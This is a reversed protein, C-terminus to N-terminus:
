RNAFAAALQPNAATIVPTYWDSKEQSFTFYKKPGICRGDMTEVVGGSEKILPFAVAIELNGKRTCEILLDAEGSAVDAYHASSSKVDSYKLGTALKKCVDFATDVCVKADRLKSVTSCKIPKTEGGVIVFSGKGKVAYFLKGSNHELIGAVLYDNYTPDSGKYIAFMTCYRGDPFNGSGDLGDLIGTFRPIGLTFTGHEETVMRIPLGSTTVTTLVAVELEVDALLAKQGFQNTQVKKSADPGFGQHVKHSDKLAALVIEQIRDMAVM